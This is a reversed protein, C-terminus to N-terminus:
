KDFRDENGGGGSLFSVTAGAQGETDGALDATGVAAAETGTSDVAPSAIEGGCFDDALDEFSGADGSASGVIENKHTHALGQGVQGVEQWGEIEEDGGGIKTHSGTVIWPDSSVVRLNRQFNPSPDNISDTRM